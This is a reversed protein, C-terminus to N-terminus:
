VIYIYIYKMYSYMMRSHHENCHKKDQTNPKFLFHSCKKKITAIFISKYRTQLHILKPIALVHLEM